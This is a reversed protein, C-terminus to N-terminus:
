QERKTTGHMYFTIGSEKMKEISYAVMMMTGSNEVPELHFTIRSEKAARSQCAKWFLVLLVDDFLKRGAPMGHSRRAEKRINIRFDFNM